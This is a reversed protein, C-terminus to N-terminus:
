FLQEVIFNVVAGAFMIIVIGIVVNLLNTRAKVVSQPEGRSLVFQVGSIVIMLVAVAGLTLYFINFGIQIPNSTSQSSGVHPLVQTNVAAQAMTKMFNYM